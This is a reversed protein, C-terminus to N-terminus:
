ESVETRRDTDFWPGGEVVFAPNDLKERLDADGYINTRHEGTTFLYARAIPWTDATDTNPKQSLPETASM